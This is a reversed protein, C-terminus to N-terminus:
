KIRRKATKPEDATEGLIKDIFAKTRAAIQKQADAAALAFPL